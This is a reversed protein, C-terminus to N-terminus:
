EKKKLNLRRRAPRTWELLGMRVDRALGDAFREVRRMRHGKKEEIGAQGFFHTAELMTSLRRRGGALRLNERAEEGEWVGATGSNQYLETADRQVFRQM